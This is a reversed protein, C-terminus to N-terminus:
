NAKLAAAVQEPDACGIILSGWEGGDALTLKVAPQGRRVSVYVRAGVRRWIGVKIQGPVSLGPSRLGNRFHQTESLGDGVVDVAVLQDAPVSINGRLALLKETATLEVVIRDGELKVKSM